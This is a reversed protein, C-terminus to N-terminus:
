LWQALTDFLKEMDLPKSLHENMGCQRSKRVDEAFANASMAVIGVTAADPRQMARIRRTAEYGDMVPMQIDMLILCYEHVASRAFRDVAEQGNVATDIRVGTESLVELIIEMNLENDEAVLLKKQSFDRLPAEARAMSSVQERKRSLAPLLRRVDSRYLPWHLIGDAPCTQSPGEEGTLLLVPFDTGLAQKFRAIGEALPAEAPDGDTILGWLDNRAEMGRAAALLRGLDADTVCFMGEAALFDEMQVCLGARDWLLVGQGMYLLAQRTNEAKVPLLPISVEVTTGVGLASQVQITGGMMETLQKAISTGLGTGEIKQEWASEAREFPTFLKKLFAEDMGVGTDSVTFTLTSEDRWPVREERVTISVSGGAPTFKVSNGALNILIQQIRTEDGRFVENSIGEPRVSFLLGKQVAGPRLITRVENLLHGLDFSERHLEMRGSEIRSMDLVNNIIALLHGSAQRVKRLCDTMREPDDNHALAIDTMGIIANMPTRIDHSMNSLFRSKAANAEEARAVAEQLERRSSDLVQRLTEAAVNDRSVTLLRLGEELPILCFSLETPPEGQFLNWGDVGPQEVAEKLRSFFSAPMTSLCVGVPAPIVRCQTLAMGKDNAYIVRIADPDQRLVFCASKSQGYKESFDRQEM